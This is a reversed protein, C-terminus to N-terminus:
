RGRGRPSVGKKAGSKKKDKKSDEDDDDGSDKRKRGTRTGSGAKQRGELVKSAKAAARSGAAGPAGAADRGPAGAANQVAARAAAEQIAKLRAQEAAAAAAKAKAEAAAKEAEAAEKKARAAARKKAAAENDGSTKMLGKRAIGEIDAADLHKGLVEAPDGGNDSVRQALKEVVDPNARSQASLESKILEQLEPDNSNAAIQDMRQLMRALDEEMKESDKSDLYSQAVSVVTALLILASLAYAYRPPKNQDREMWIGLVAAFGAVVVGIMTVLLGMDLGSSFTETMSDWM